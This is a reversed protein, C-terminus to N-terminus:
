QPQAAGAEIAILYDVYADAAQAISANKQLIEAAAANVDVGSAQPQGFASRVDSMARSLFPDEDASASKLAGSLEADYLMDSLEALQAAHAANKPTIRFDAALKDFMAPYVLDSMMTAGAQEPTIAAAPM